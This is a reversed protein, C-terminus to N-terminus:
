VPKIWLRQDVIGRKLNESITIAKDIKTQSSKYRKITYILNRKKGDTLTQFAEMFELDSELVAELEEPMEVGYKTTNEFFQITFYDSPCMGLEKQHQKSFMMRYVGKIKRIAAHFSIEKKNFSAVVRARKHGANLFQEALAEPLIVFYPGEKSVEYKKSKLM